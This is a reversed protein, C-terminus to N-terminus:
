DAGTGEFRVNKGSSCGGGKQWLAFLFDVQSQSCSEVGAHHGEELDEAGARGGPGRWVHIQLRGSKANSDFYRFDSAVLLSWAVLM